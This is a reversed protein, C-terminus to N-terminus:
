YGIIVVDLGRAKLRARCETWVSPDAAFSPAVLGISDGPRLPTMLGAEDEKGKATRGSPNDVLQWLAAGISLTKM